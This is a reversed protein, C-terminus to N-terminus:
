KHFIEQKNWVKFLLPNETESHDLIINYLNESKLCLVLM